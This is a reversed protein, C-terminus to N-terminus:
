ARDSELLQFLGMLPADGRLYSVLRDVWAREREGSVGDFHDVAGEWRARRVLTGPDGVIILQRRARLWLRPPVAPEDGYTVARSVHSRTLSVILVDCSRHEWALPGAIMTGALRPSREALRRILEAQASYPTAVGLVVGQQRTSLEQLKQVVRDAEPLNVFGSAPLSKLLDPSLRERAQPDALDTEYGAGGQKPGGRRATSEPPTAFLERRGPHSPVPLFFVAPEAPKPAAIAYPVDLFGSLWAALGPTTGHPVSLKAVRGPDHKLPLDSLWQEARVRDWTATDFNFGVTRTGCLLEIVGDGVAFREEPDCPEFRASFLGPEEAWRITRCRPRAPLENLERLIYEKAVLPATSGPFVIEALVPDADVLTLIRLEIDPNDALRESELHQRQDPAVPHLRCCLRDGETIWPEHHLRDVLRPFFDPLLRAPRHPTPRGPRPPPSPRAEVPRPPPEGVLLWRGARQAASLFEEEGILHADLLILLDLGTNAATSDAFFPDSTLSTLPGAVLNVMGRFRRALQEAEIRAFSEWNRAFSAEEEANRLRDSSGAEAQRLDDLTPEPALTIGAAAARELLPQMARRIGALDAAIAAQQTLLDVTRRTAEDDLLQTRRERQLSEIRQREAALETERRTLKELAQQTQACASEQETIKATLGKDFRARWYVGTWWRGTQRAEVLPRLANLRSQSESLSREAEARRKQVEIAETELTAILTTQERTLTQVATVFNSSNTLTDAEQRVEDAVRDLRDRVRDLRATLEGHRTAHQMLEPWHAHLEQLATLRHEVATRNEAARSRLRDALANEQHEITLGAVPGPLEAASEDAGLCRLAILGDSSQLRALLADVAASPGLLLVRGGQRILQHIVEGIVRKKGTGPSGQLLFLDPTQLARAVADLQLHDLARDIPDIPTAYPATPLTVEFIRSLVARAAGDDSPPSALRGATGVPVLGHREALALLQQQQSPTL